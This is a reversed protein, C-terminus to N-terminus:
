YSYNRGFTQKIYTDVNKGNKKWRARIKEIEELAPVSDQVLKDNERARENLEHVQDLLAQVRQRIELMQCSHDQEKVLRGKDFILEVVREYKWFPQFGLHLYLEWIFDTAILM